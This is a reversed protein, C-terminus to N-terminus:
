RGAYMTLSARAWDDIRSWFVLPLVNALAFATVWVQDATALKLPAKEENGADIIMTKLIRAYYYAAIAANVAGVVALWWYSSGREIVAAFVYLKGMFGVLPPIGMLSLLFVAMAITLLPARRYLGPYDRLDFTGDHHHILTVVLFAGLNMFLYALLYVMMGRAGNASLAVVGLMVYGAHAISYYALLLKLNTQTLAAVNGVTMTVASVVMLLWPWDISGVLDWQGSGPTALGTFFFRTLIAFGAAKPAVSLFATVPTPAGQYVDPCWFHFPVAATKFGFGAFVLLAVVYVTLRNADTLGSALVQRIVPLSTSGTMGYLLSLGYLMAGTSVAGFLVYKLSAENSLRDGKLYAVMVYSTISVMELALYLMALDNAAALLLNSFTVALMLAYFEGQGLGRLERSGDFRFAGVVLLASGILILKFFIGMPDLALMGEFLGASQAGLRVSLVLAAALTAMTLLWNVVDRGRARTTDVLVVLLLGGTLVVEPWFRHLSRLLENM